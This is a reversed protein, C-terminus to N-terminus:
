RPQGPLRRSPGPPGGPLLDEPRLNVGNILRALSTFRMARLQGRELRSITSQNLGVHFALQRQTMSSGLRSRLVAQGIILLGRQVDPDPERITVWRHM